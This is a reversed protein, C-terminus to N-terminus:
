EPGGRRRHCGRGREVLVRRLLSGSALGRLLIAFSSIVVVFGCAAPGWVWESSGGGTSKSATAVPSFSCTLSRCSFTSPFALWGSNPTAKEPPPIRVAVYLRPM